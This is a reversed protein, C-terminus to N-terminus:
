KVGKRGETPICGASARKGVKEAIREGREERCVIRDTIRRLKKLTLPTKYTKRDRQSTV